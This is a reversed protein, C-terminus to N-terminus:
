QGSATAAAVSDFVELHADLNTVHLLRRLQDAPAALRFRGGGGLASRHGEVLLALGTSDVLRVQGVDLVVRTRGRRLLPDLTTRLVEATGVDLVGAATVVVADGRDAVSVALDSV